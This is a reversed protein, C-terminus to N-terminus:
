LKLIIPRVNMFNPISMMGYFLVGFKYKRVEKEKYCRRPLYEFERSPIIVCSGVSIQARM